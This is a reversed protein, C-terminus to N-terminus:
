REQVLEESCMDVGKYLITKLRAYFLRFRIGQLLTIIRNETRNKRYSGIQIVIAPVTGVSTASCCQVM